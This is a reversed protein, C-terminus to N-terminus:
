GFPLRHHPEQYQRRRAMANPQQKDRRTLSRSGYCDNAGHRSVGQKCATVAEQCQRSGQLLTLSYVEIAGPGLLDRPEGPHPHPEGLSNHCFAPAATRKTRQLAQIADPPHPRAQERLKPAVDREIRRRALRTHRAGLGSVDRGVQGRRGVQEVDEIM